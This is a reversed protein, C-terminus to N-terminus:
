TRPGNISCRINRYLPPDVAVTSLAENLLKVVVAKLRKFEKVIVYFIKKNIIIDM